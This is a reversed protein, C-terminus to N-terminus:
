IRTSAAGTVHQIMIWNIFACSKDQALPYRHAPKFAPWTCKRCRSRPALCPEAAALILHGVESRAPRVKIEIDFGLRTLCDMLKRESLNIFDGRM